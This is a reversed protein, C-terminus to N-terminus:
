QLAEQMGALAPELRWGRLRKVPLHANELTIDLFRAQSLRADRTGELRDQRGGRDRSQKPRMHSKRKMTGERKM